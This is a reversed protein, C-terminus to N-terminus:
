DHDDVGTRDTGSKGAPEEPRAPGALELTETDIM